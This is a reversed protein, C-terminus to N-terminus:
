INIFKLVSDDATQEECDKAAAFTWYYDYSGGGVLKEGKWTNGVKQFEPFAGILATPNNALLILTFKKGTGQLARNALRYLPRDLTKMEGFFRGTQTDGRDATRREPGGVDLALLSFRLSSISDLLEALEVGGIGSETMKFAFSELVNFTHLTISSYIREPNVGHNAQNRQYSQIPGVNGLGPFTFPPHM